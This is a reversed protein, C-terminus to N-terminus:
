FRESEEVPTPHRMFTETPVARNSGVHHILSRITNLWIETGRTGQFLHAHIMSEAQQQYLSHVANFAVQFLDVEHANSIIDSRSYGLEAFQAMKRLAVERGLAAGEAVRSPITSAGFGTTLGESDTPMRESRMAASYGACFGYLHNVTHYRLQDWWYPCNLGSLLRLGIVIWGVVGSYLGLGLPGSLELDLMLSVLTQATTRGTTRAVSLALSHSEEAEVADRLRRPLVDLAVESAESSTLESREHVQNRLELYRAEAVAYLAEFSERRIAFQVRGVTLSVIQQSESTSEGLWPLRLLSTGVAVVARISNLSRIATEVEIPSAPEADNRANGGGQLPIKSVDSLM